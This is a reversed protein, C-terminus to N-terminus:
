KNTGKARGDEEYLDLRTESDQIVLGREMEFTGQFEMLPEYYHLSFRLAPFLEGAKEILPLPPSWATDFHYKLEQETEKILETDCFGWKTGWNEIRWYKLQEGTLDKPYPILKNADLLAGDEGKVFEKFREIEKQPGTVILANDCWNPM